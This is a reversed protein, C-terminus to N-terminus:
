FCKKRVIKDLLNIFTIGVDKVFLFDKEWNNMKYDFFHWRYRKKKETLCTFIIKVGNKYKSYYKKITFIM